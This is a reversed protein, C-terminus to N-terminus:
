VVLGAVSEVSSRPRATSPSLEDNASRTATSTVSDLTNKPLDPLQNKSPLEAVLRISNEPFSQHRDAPTVLITSPPFAGERTHNIGLDSSNPVPEPEPSYVSGESSSGTSVSPTTSIQIQHISTLSAKSALRVTVSTPTISEGAGKKSTLPSPSRLRPPRPPPPASFDIDFMARLLHSHALKLTSVPSIIYIRPLHQPYLPRMLHLFTVKSPLTLSHTGLRHHSSRTPRTHRLIREM